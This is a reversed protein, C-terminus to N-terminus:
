RQLVCLGPERAKGGEGVGAHEKCRIRACGAGSGGVRGSMAQAGFGGVGSPMEDDDDDSDSGDLDIGYKIVHEAPRSMTTIWGHAGGARDLARRGWRIEFYVPRNM